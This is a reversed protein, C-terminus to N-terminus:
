IVEELTSLYGGKALRIRVKSGVSEPTAERVVSGDSATVLAYGRELVGFPSLLKLREESRTLRNELQEYFRTLVHSMSDQLHDIRQAFWEGKSRLAGVMRVQLTEVNTRLKSVDPVALEAAISPTGARQDAAFESLSFDSEHGIACITPLTCAAIRRVLAENNFEFLDEFSGGGRAIIIIDPRWKGSEFYDLGKMVSSPTEAGQVACPFLRINLGSARRTLVRVMDHIVAGAESTIIGIKKPYYPLSKKRFREFLGEKELKAKLELYKQMLDGEGLLKMKRVVFQYNGRQPYVGVSGRVKVKSGDKFLAAQPCVSFAGAFMVASIQAGEDKLTFYAHGSPYVKWGSIEGEVDLLPFGHELMAKIQMTLETVSLSAM